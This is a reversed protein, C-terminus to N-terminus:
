RYAVRRYVELTRTAIKDWDYREAVIDIQGKRDEDTLPRNIFERIKTSLAKVDGVNFFRDRSLGVDRNGPIDSVICSLSYSMAELLVIPLGEYYSPLVFLGAHSYLEQLPERNLFGTLVINSNKGAKEKL